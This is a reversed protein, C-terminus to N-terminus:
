PVMDVKSRIQLVQIHRWELMDLFLLNRKMNNKLRMWSSGRGFRTKLWLFIILQQCKLVWFSRIQDFSPSSGDRTTVLFCHAAETTTQSGHCLGTYTREKINVMCPNFNVLLVISIVDEIACKQGPCQLVEFFTGPRKLLSQVMVHTLFSQPTAKRSHGPSWEWIPIVGEEGSRFWGSKPIEDYRSNNWQNNACITSM